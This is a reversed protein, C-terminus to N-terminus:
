KLLLLKKSSRFLGDQITYIYVGGSLNDAEYRVSHLGATQLENVLSAIENGLEANKKNVTVSWPLFVKKFVM